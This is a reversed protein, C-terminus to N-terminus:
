EWKLILGYSVLDCSLGVTALYVRGRTSAFYAVRRAQRTEASLTPNFHGFECCMESVTQCIIRQRM